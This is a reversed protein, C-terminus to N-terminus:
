KNKKGKGKSQHKGKEARAKTNAKLAHFEKSGPKIGMEKAIVGWGKGRNAKYIKVVEDVPKGTLRGCELTMYIDSPSMAFSAHLETIKKESVNYTTGMEAKFKGFDASAEVDISKLDTDIQLGGSQAFANATLVFALIAFFMFKTRM